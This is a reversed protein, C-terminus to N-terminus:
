APTPLIAPTVDERAPQDGGAALDALYDASFDTTLEVWMPRHDSMQYTRWEAYSNFAGMDAAYIAQDADRYVVDDWRFVGANSLKIPYRAPKKPDELWAIQDYHRVDGLDTHNATLEPPIHFGAKGIAKAAEEDANFINFDGLMLVNQAWAHKEQTQNALYQALWGIEAARRPDTQGSGYYIHATCITFKQWGVQFGVLFPTRAFQQVFEGSPHGAPDPRVVEGVLGGFRVKRSDYLFTLRESNGGAGRTVDSVLVNWWSGLYGLLKNLASLDDRVEQVAVLDFASIIEAIYLLPEIGRKGGKTSDFERINWTAILVRQDISHQPIKALETKLKLLNDATRERVVAPVTLASRGKLATYFPM